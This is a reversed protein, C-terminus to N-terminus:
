RGTFVNMWKKSLVRRICVVSKVIESTMVVAIALYLPLGLINVALFALSVQACFNFIFEVILCWVTDGGARIIGCILVYVLMKPLQAAAFVLLSKILMDTTEPGFGYIGAIPWIAAILLLMTFINFIVILKMMKMAYKYAMDKDGRGLTRGIIVSSANSMGAYLTQFVETVTNAIQVIALAAASIQGYIAFVIATSIAWLGENAIVPSATKMVKVFMAKEIHIMESIKAKLPHEKSFIYIYSMMAACECIRATLTAIAAGRVGLEPFGLKGYILCFNLFVNMLVASMSIATPVKLIAVSRSNYTIVFSLGSFIYSICAIDLYQVALDIVEADDTFLSVLQPGFLRAAAIAPVTLAFCMIYDIGMVKRFNVVDKIGWYQVAYVAAGSFVGFIAVSYIFYIQNAAGVAALANESLKGVMITDVLNLGVAVLQQLMVPITISLLQAYFFKKDQKDLTNATLKNGM